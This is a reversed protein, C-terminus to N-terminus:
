MGKRSIKYEGKYDQIAENLGADYQFVFVTQNKEYKHPKLDVIKFNKSLLYKAVIPSFIIKSDQM